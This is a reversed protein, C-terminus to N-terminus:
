GEAQVLRLEKRMQEDVAEVTLRLRELQDYSAQVLSKRDSTQPNGSEESWEDRSFQLQLSLDVISKLSTAVLSSFYFEAVQAHEWLNWTAELKFHVGQATIQSYFSLLAKYAELRHGHVSIRTQAKAETLAGRALASQERAERLSAEAAEAQRRAAQASRWAYIASLLAVVVGALTLLNPVDLVVTEPLSM